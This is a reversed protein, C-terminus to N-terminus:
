IFALFSLFAAHNECPLIWGAFSCYLLMDNKLRQRTPVFFFNMRNKAATTDTKVTSTVLACATTKVFM